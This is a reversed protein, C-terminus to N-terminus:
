IRAVDGLIWDMRKSEEFLIRDADMASQVIHPTMIVMLETKSKDQTRYRFLSGVYPLDGLWPFKNETKADRKQILGGIAVTEGDRAYVTTEFHQVNFQSATVGNGFSVQTPLVSSVEPIVRMLVTGDPSIRPTVQLII